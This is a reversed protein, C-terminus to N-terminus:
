GIHPANTAWTSIFAEPPLFYLSRFSEVIIYVRAALYLPALFGVSWRSLRDTRHFLVSELLVLLASITPAIAVTLAAMRWLLQEEHTPFDLNWAFLHIGGFLTISLISTLVMLRDIHKKQFRGQVVQHVVSQPMYYYRAQLFSIPAAKAILAFTTDSVAAYTDLYFPVGVDKPKPWEAIYIIFACSSFAVTSIELPACPINAVRRAILQVALWLVQIIALLRVLGDSKSKDRIENLELFPLRQIVDNSRALVLQTSDLIWINGHLPAIHKARFKETEKWIEPAETGDNAAALAIHPKFPAWPIEGLKSLHREQDNQFKLIFEPVDEVQSLTKSISGNVTDAGSSLRSREDEFEPPPTVLGDSMSQPLEGSHNAVGIPETLSSLDRSNSRRGGEQGFVEQKGRESFRLAIGGMNALVTHTLSWPVDDARALEKLQPTNVYAAFLNTTSIGVLYEPFALMIGMWSLKRGLLYLQKRISQLSSKTKLDPPVTLHLVSWTSTIIVGMCSWIIGMTSRINPGGVFGSPAAAPFTCNPQFDIM